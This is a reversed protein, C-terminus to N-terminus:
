SCRAGNRGECETENRKAEKAKPQLLSRRLRLPSCMFEFVLCTSRDATEATAMKAITALPHECFSVVASFVSEAGVTELILTLGPGFPTTIEVPWACNVSAGSPPRVAVSSWFPEGAVSSAEAAVALLVAGM